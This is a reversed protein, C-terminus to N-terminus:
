RVSLADLGYRHDLGAYYAPEVSLPQGVSSLIAVKTSLLSGSRASLNNELSFINTKCYIPLSHRHEHQHENEVWPSQKLQSFKGESNARNEYYNTQREAKASTRWSTACTSAFSSPHTPTSIRARVATLFPLADRKPVSTIKHNIVKVYGSEKCLHILWRTLLSTKKVRLNLVTIKSVLRRHPHLTHQSLLHCGHNKEQVSRITTSKFGSPDLLALQISLPM